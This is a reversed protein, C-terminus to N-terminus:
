PKWGKEALKERMTQVQIKYLDIEDQQRKIREEMIRTEKNHNEVAYNVDSRIIAAWWIFGGLQAVLFIILPILYQHWKPKKEELMSIIMQQEFTLNDDREPMTRAEATKTTPITSVKEIAASM